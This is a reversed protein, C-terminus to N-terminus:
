ASRDTMWTEGGNTAHSSGARRLPHLMNGRRLVTVGLAPGLSLVALSWRWGVADAVVPVLRISAVTVLFGMAMQATIATGVYRQETVRTLAASFQASDAIVAAGLLGLLAGLLVPSAGFVLPTLASCAGSVALAMAAVRPGGFRDGLYGAAVAGAVGAVGISAFAGLEAASERAAGSSAHLSAALYAPLWTWFAYLEGMHGLYGLNITRQLPDRIGLLLARPAFPAHSAVLPGERAAVLVIVVGLGALAASILMVERWPLAPLAAIAHPSASGLTLAGVAVGLALGRGRGFWSCLLRLGPPYVGALAMGTVFRLPGGVHLGDALLAFAVTTASACAGCVAILTPGSVRDALNLAASLVAGSVFGLQVSTTLWSVEGDSLHWAGRLAPVVASASFWVGMILVEAAGVVLLQRGAGPANPHRGSLSTSRADLLMPSAVTRGGPRSRKRKAAADKVRVAMVDTEVSPM